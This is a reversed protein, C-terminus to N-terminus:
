NDPLFVERIERYEIERLLFLVLFYVIIGSGIALVLNIIISGTLREGIYYVVVGMVGSAILIKVLSKGPFDWVLYRRSLGAILFFLVLYSFLTTIAAALYGYRPVFLLNLVINLVASVMLSGMIMITKKYFVFANSYIQQFGLFFAGAAVLPIIRYGTRYTEALLLEILPRALLSLGVVAPICVMMFFRTVRRMHERVAEEGEREWAQIIIPFLAMLFLSIIITISRQSINYIASYIGVEESGRLLKIIYRDSLGLVWGALNGVVLPLSYKGMAKIMSWSINIPFLRPKGVSLLWLFPIALTYSLILGYLMGQIGLNCIKVFFLGFVLNMVSYWVAFISYQRVKREARLFHQLISSLSMLAFIGIGIYLMTMLGTEVQSHFIFALGSFLSSIIIISILSTQVTTDVFEERRGDRQYLPLFRIIAMSLWANLISFINVTALVLAYNGYDDPLFLRTLIPVSIFGVIAPVIKTPLYRVIDKVLDRIM